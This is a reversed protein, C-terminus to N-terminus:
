RFKVVKGDLAETPAGYLALITPAMDIVSPRQGDEIARNSFLVGPVVDPDNSAHDGSWKSDNDEIVEASFGGTTTSWSVRYNEAFGLYLDADTEAYEGSYLEHHRWVKSVVQKGNAPDRLALLKETIEVCLAEYEEEDVFGEVERGEKNIYIKGLGLAFARSKSRNMYLLYDQQQGQPTKEMVAKLDSGGRKPVLYGEEILWSNIAMQRHFSTFGHDSVVLLTTNDNVFRDMVEGVIGDMRKYCDLIASGYEKALEADYMPNDEDFLRFMLHQIRDTEGFMSFYFDYDDQGLAHYLIASRDRTLLELQELFVGEGLEMDKLPNTICAWGTTDFLEGSEEALRKGFGHPSEMCMHQPVHRPDYGIPSFFLRIEKKVSLVRFRLLGTAGLPFRLHFRLPIWGSWAGDAVTVTQDGITVEVSSDGDVRRVSVDLKSDFGAAMEEKLEAQEDQLADKDGKNRRLTRTIHKLRDDVEDRRQKDSPGTLSATFVGDNEKLLVVEGGSSTSRETGVPVDQRSTSFISYSGTSRGAVDPVGLGGTMQGGSEFEDFPAAMPVLFGKVRVGHDDLRDWLAEGEVMNELTPVREPPVDGGGLLLWAVGGGVAAVPIAPLLTGISLGPRGKGLKVMVILLGLFLGGLAGGLVGPWRTSSPAEYYDSYPRDGVKMFRVEPFYSGPGRCVFGFMNTKGPNLGRGFTSWSVASEAPNTTELRSFTGQEALQGLRPLHGEAIFRTALGHDIGDFGLVIVRPREGGEQATVSSTTFPLLLACFVAPVFTCRM